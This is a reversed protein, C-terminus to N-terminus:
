EGVGSFLDGLGLDDDPRLGKIGALLDDHGRATQIRKIVPGYREREPAERLRPGIEDLKSGLLADAAALQQANLPLGHNASTLGDLYWGVQGAIKQPTREGFIHALASLTRPLDDLPGARGEIALEERRGKAANDSTQDEPEESGERGYPTSPFSTLPVAKGTRGVAETPVDLPRQLYTWRGKGHRIADLLYGKEAYLAVYLGPTSIALPPDEVFRALSDIVAEGSIGDDLDRAHNRPDVCAAVIAWERLREPLQDLLVAIKNEEADNAYVPLSLDDRIVVPRITRTREKEVKEPAVLSTAGPISFIEDGEACLLASIAEFLRAVQKSNLGFTAGVVNRPLHIAGRRLQERTLFLLFLPFISANKRARPLQRIIKPPVSATAGQNEPRFPDALPHIAVIRNSRDFRPDDPNRRDYFHEPRDYKVIGNDELEKQAAVV